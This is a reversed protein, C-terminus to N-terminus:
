SKEERLARRLATLGRHAASRVTSQSIRMAAAIQDDPLDLFYRLGLVERQRDPLRRLARIIEQREEATLVASEASTVPQGHSDDLEMTPRRRLASRCGNLVSSRVYGLAKAQENLHPWCRYLGLFAEQVVDEAAQRNGLMINALRILGLAHGAYLGSVAAARDTTGSSFGASGPQDSGTLVHRQPVPAATGDLEM